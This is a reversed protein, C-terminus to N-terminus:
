GRNRGWDESEECRRKKDASGPYRQRACDALDREGAALRTSIDGSEADDSCETSGTARRWQAATADRGTGPLDRLPGSRCLSWDFAKEYFGDGETNTIIIKSPAYLKSTTKPVLTSEQASSSFLLSFPM